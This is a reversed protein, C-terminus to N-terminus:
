AGITKDSFYFTLWALVGIAAGVIYPSWAGGDYNTANVGFDALLPMM